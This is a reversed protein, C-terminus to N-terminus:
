KVQPQTLYLAGSPIRGPNHVGMRKLCGSVTIQSGLLRALRQLLTKDEGPQLWISGKGGKTGMELYYGTSEDFSLRGVVQKDPDIVTIELDKAHIEGSGAALFSKLDVSYKLAFEGPLTAWFARLHGDREQPPSQKAILIPLAYLAVEDNPNLTVTQHACIQDYVYTPANLVRENSVVDWIEPVVISPKLYELKVPRNSVNVLSVSPRVETGVSIQAYDLTAHLALPPKMNEKCLSETGLVMVCGWVAVAFAIHWWKTIRTGKLGAEYIAAVKRQNEHTQSTNLTIIIM